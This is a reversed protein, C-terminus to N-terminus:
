LARMRWRESRLFDDNEVFAARIEVLPPFGDAGFRFILQAADDRADEADRQSQGGIREDQGFDPASQDEAVNVFRAAATLEQQHAAEDGAKEDADHEDHSKDALETRERCECSENGCTDGDAQLRNKKGDSCIEKEHDTAVTDTNAIADADGANGAVYDVDAEDAEIEHLKGAGPDLQIGGAADDHKGVGHEELGARREELLERAGFVRPMFDGDRERWLAIVFENM